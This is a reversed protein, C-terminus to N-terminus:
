HFFQKIPSNPASNGLDSFGSRPCGAKKTLHPGAASFRVIGESSGFYFRSEGNDITITKFGYGLKLDM